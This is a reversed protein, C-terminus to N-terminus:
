YSIQKQNFIPRFENILGRLQETDVVVNIEDQDVKISITPVPIFGRHDATPQVNFLRYLYGWLRQLQINTSKRIKYYLLLMLYEMESLCLPDIHYEGQVIDRSESSNCDFEFDMSQYLTEILDQVILAQSPGPNTVYSINRQLNGNKRGQKLLKLVRVDGYQTKSSLLKTTKAPKCASSSAGM